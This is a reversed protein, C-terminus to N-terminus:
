GSDADGRAAVRRVLQATPPHLPPPPGAEDATPMAGEAHRAAFRHRFRTFTGGRGLEGATPIAREAPRVRRASLPHLPKPSLECCRAARLVAGSAAGRPEAAPCRRSGDTTM